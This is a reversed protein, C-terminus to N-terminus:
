GKRPVEYVLVPAMTDIEEVPQPPRWVFISFTMKEPTIDIRTFGNKETTKLAEDMGLVLSPSSEVRRYSSPFGLDGTGLTGSLIAHVPQALKFDASRTIRGAATAHMDGEVVVAARRTQSALAEILRQHQAFWGKQWGPKEAALSLQGNRDDLIDPYWDGLKGSAWAFPLSPAHFFHATDEARTRAVLWDETWQPLIRAHPGKYDVYRRCDYLASEVLKGFRLTGYKPSTGPALRAQDGGALWPPRNRDPLFEPYYLHQTQDAAVIGYDDPPMTALEGDFEDNEFYDHDDVVFFAPTSRLSTGYLAPIQQDCVNLFISRNRPHLMPVSLDLAGGYDPWVKETVFKAFPKNLLTKQDWYIHDGNSIVAEPAFSLARALLRRRSTMELFISKDRFKVGGAGGACTFAVIRMRGPSADPAPFTKLPWADCLPAAGRDTIRLEYPTAPQLSAADFRWFRGDPDTQMGDVPKGDVILRPPEALPTTFSTKILFREHSATPILHVLQGPNWSDAPQPAAQAKVVGPMALAGMAAGALGLFERRAMTAVPHSATQREEM